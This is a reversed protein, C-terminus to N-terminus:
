QRLWKVAGRMTTVLILNMKAKKQEQAKKETRASKERQRDIL